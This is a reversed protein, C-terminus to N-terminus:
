LVTTYGDLYGERHGERRALELLSKLILIILIITIWSTWALKFYFIAGISLISTMWYVLNPLVRTEKVWINYENSIKQINTNTNEKLETIKDSNM